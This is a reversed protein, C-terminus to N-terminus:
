VHEVITEYKMLFDLKFNELSAGTPRPLPCYMDTIYITRGRLVCVVLVTDASSHGRLYTGLYTDIM